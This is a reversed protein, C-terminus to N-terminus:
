RQLGLADWLFQYSIARRGQQAAHRTEGDEYSRLLGKVRELGSATEIAQRPTRDDLAPIPEDAWNAYQHRMVGEYADALAAWDLGPPLELPLGPPLGPAQADGAGGAQRAALMGRPDSREQLQFSVAAGALADFWGRGSEALRETPYQVAIRRGDSEIRIQALSRSMGDDGVVLRDWGKARDGEVDSQVALAAELAAADHLAYHDTVFLLTEGTSAHVIHPLPAPLLFQALWTEIIQQGTHLIEYEEDFVPAAVQERLRALLSRGAATTFGYLAGSFQIEGDASMLRAGVLEGVRLSASAARETVRQPVLTDDLADCVTVSTGPVVETVHYPRLPRQALQELWARQGVTFLPGGPGTLLEAVRRHQGRVNIDGEALMWETLNVQLQQWVTEDVDRTATAAAEEDEDFVSLVIEDIETEMAAAFAKRHYQGLWGLAREVAGATSDQPVDAADAGRGCCQKYKRGSGCPCRDNRGIKTNM